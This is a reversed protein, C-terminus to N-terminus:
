EPETGSLRELDIIWRCVDHTENLDGRDIADHIENSKMGYREEYAKVRAVITAQNSKMLEPDHRQRDLHRMIEGVREDISKRELDRAVM